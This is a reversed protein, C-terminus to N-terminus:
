RQSIQQGGRCAAAHAAADSFERFSGQQKNNIRVIWRRRNKRWYVCTAGSTNNSKLGVNRLNEGPTVIRLNEKRNDLKNRNIHDVQATYSGRLGLVVHHLYHKAQAITTRAYGNSTCRWAFQSLYEYDGDDILAVKGVGHKGTLPLTAM